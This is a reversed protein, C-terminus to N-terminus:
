KGGSRDKLESQRHSGCASVKERTGRVLHLGTHEGDWFLGPPIRIRFNRGWERPVLTHQTTKKM